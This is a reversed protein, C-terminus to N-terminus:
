ATTPTDRVSGKEILTCHVKVPSPTDLLPMLATTHPWDGENLPRNEIMSVLKNAAWYGMEYHPLEITTLQPELTEAFVRHNDVGIVSIDRGVALGHRAATEYVYPAHTTSASSDTPSSPTSYRKWPVYHRGTTSCM